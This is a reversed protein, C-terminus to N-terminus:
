RVFLLGAKDTLGGEKSCDDTYYLDWKDRMLGTVTGTGGNDRFFFRDTAGLHGAFSLM